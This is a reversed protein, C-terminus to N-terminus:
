RGVYIEIELMSKFAIFMDHVYLLLYIIIIIFVCPLQM